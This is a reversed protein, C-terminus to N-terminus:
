ERASAVPSDVAKAYKKARERERLRHEVLLDIGREIEASEEESPENTHSEPQEYSKPEAWGFVIQLMLKQAPVKGKIASNYIAMMVNPMFTAFVPRQEAFLEAYDVSRLHRVITRESVGIREALERNTPSAQNERYYEIMAKRIKRQMIQWDRRKTPTPNDM